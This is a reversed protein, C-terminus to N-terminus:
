WRFGMFHEKRNGLLGVLWDILRILRVAVEWYLLGRVYVCLQSKMTVGRLYYEWNEGDFWIRLEWWNFIRLIGLWGTNETRMLYFEYLGWWIISADNFNWLKVWDMIFWYMKGELRAMLVDQWSWIESPLGQLVELKSGKGFRM